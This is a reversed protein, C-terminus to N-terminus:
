GPAGIRSSHIRRFSPERRDCLGSQFHIRWLVSGQLNTLKGLWEPLSTLALGSLNLRGSGRATGNSHASRRHREPIGPKAEHCGGKGCILNHHKSAATPLRFRILARLRRSSRILDAAASGKWRELEALLGKFLTFMPLKGMVPTM